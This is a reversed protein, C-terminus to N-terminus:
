QSFRVEAGALSGVPRNDADVLEVVRAEPPVAEVDAVELGFRLPAGDDPGVLVVRFARGTTGEIRASFVRTSGSATVGRLSPGEVEVVAGGAVLGEPVSLRAELTGPGSPGSDCAALTGLIAALALAPTSRRRM